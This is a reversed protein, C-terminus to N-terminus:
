LTQFHCRRVIFSQNYLSSYQKFHNRAGSMAGLACFRHGGVGPTQGHTASTRSGKNHEEM